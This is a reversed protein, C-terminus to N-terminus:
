WVETLYLYMIEMDGLSYAEKQWCDHNDADCIMLIREEIRNM